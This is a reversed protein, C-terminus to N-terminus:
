REERAKLDELVAKLEVTGATVIREGPRVTQCGQREQEATLRAIRERDAADAPNFTSVVGGSTGIYFLGRVPDYTWATLTSLDFVGGAYAQEGM